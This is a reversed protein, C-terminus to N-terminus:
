RPSQVCTIRKNILCKLLDREDDMRIIKTEIKKIRDELEVDGPADAWIRKIQILQNSLADSQFELSEIRDLNKEIAAQALRTYIETKLAFPQVDLAYAVSAGISQGSTVLMSLTISLASVSVVLASKPWQTPNWNM